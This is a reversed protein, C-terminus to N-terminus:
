GEEDLATPGQNLYHEIELREVDDVVRHTALDDERSIVPAERRVPEKRRVPLSISAVPVRKLAASPFVLLNEPSEQNQTGFTGAKKHQV